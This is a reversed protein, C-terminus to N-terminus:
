TNAATTAWARSSPTVGSNRVCFREGAMGRIYAEGGTAGYFRWTASSSTRRPVSPASGAPPYVIVKGGSLGKGFYDNADGELELTMGRPVFRRLEARGVGPLPPPDHRGAARGATAGTVESGVMTGVVRNVNRIPLTAKVPEGRELAPACLDLLTTIDLSKDLGHDQRDPLLAGVDPGVDPSGSCRSVPRIGEGELARDGQAAELRDVRGVM